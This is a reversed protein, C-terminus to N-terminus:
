QKYYPRRIFDHAELAATSGQGVAVGIQKIPHNTVDGAAFVGPLNTHQLMDVVIYNDSDVAVGAEKAQRSNPYQGIQVFVGDVPQESTEGTKNNVLTVKTVLKDGSIQKVESNFLVGANKKTKLAQVLADEGRFVNRRHVIKIESALDALYLTTILASNGGGVVILRKGKFLPGDCIGCYSVGRGRFEEEGPIELKRYESGSCIVVAKTRYTAKHTKVVKSEKSFDYSIVGEFENIKLGSKKAHDTMKQALEFGGISEFGPYNEVLPAEATVGGVLKDELLVTALGSRVAYIGAALGAAGGGVVILELEQM